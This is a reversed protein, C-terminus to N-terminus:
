PADAAAKSGGTNRSRRRLASPRRRFGVVHTHDFLAVDRDHRQPRALEIALGEILDPLDDASGAAEGGGSRRRAGTPMRSAFITAEDFPRGVFQLGVPLGDVFRVARQDGASRGAAGVTFVDALYMQLPDDTREGLRFAPTPSTPMAVVDVYALAARLRPPDAHAGAAGESLVRRLLRREARLHRAHHAAEGGRRLRRRADATVDRRAHEPARARVRLARRRLARPELESGGHRGPLLRPDRARSHPLEVDVIAAGLRGCRTSRRTSRPRVGSTWAKKSRPARPVGIRAGKVRRHPRWRVSDPAPAARLDCGASRAPSRRVACRPMRSPTAIPGIQDLSSAFALLGYRSVRGYTPKLGVVGCLAAPQRISGGTDSGLALPVMRAAVAAASGGSSGGPIRDLAWPNRVPGFASNETSSGMAFEDCNTKGVIVAGAAELRDVVTADYPPVYDSSSGRARPRRSMRAHLPQGQARDARRRAAPEWAARDRDLTRARDLAREAAVTQFANLSPDDPRYARARRRVRRSAGLRGAAVDDRIQRATLPLTVRDGTSRSLARGRAAAPRPPSRKERPLSPRRRRRGPADSPAALPQATPPVGSTDVQQVQDAYALIDALQRAFM